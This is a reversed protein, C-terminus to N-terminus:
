ATKYQNRGQDKAKYLAADVRNLFQDIEGEYSDCYFGIGASFTIVRGAPSITDQLFDKLRKAAEIADQKGTEPLIIMFEEGGFRGCVDKERTIRQMAEAFFVLTEDGTKHGLSDNVAKFHDIDILIISFHMQEQLAQLTKILARRNALGTLPDTLAEKTASQLQSEQNQIYDKFTQNLQEAEFYWTPIKTENVTSNNEKLEYTQMALQQLPYAIRNAFMRALLFTLLVFPLSYFMMKKITELVPEMIVEYPTQSVIGWNSSPIHTYGALMDIEKTNTVKMAGSEGNMLKKVVPNESVVEGIRNRDAHYIISGHQDVVYVYSGDQSFHEGLVTEIINHDQLYIVGALLGYYNSEHDQLPSSILLIKQGVVGDYLDSILTEKKELAETIGVSHVHFGIVDLAPASTLIKAEENIVAISNFYNSSRLYQYLATTLGEEDNLLPVMDIARLSLSEKMSEFSQDTIQALKESYVRNIEMTHNIANEKTVFYSVLLTSSLLGFMTLCLLTLIWFRLSKKLM